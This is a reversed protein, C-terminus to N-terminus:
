SVEPTTSANRYFIAPEVGEFTPIRLV